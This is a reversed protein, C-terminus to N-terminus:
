KLNFPPQSFSFQSLTLSLLPAAKPLQIRQFLLTRVSAQLIPLSCNNLSSSLAFASPLTCALTRLCSSSPPLEAHKPFLDPTNTSLTLHSIFDSLYIPGWDPLTKCTSFTPTSNQEVHFPFDDIDKNNLTPDMSSSFPMM